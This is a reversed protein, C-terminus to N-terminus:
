KVTKIYIYTTPNYYISIFNNSSNVTELYRTIWNDEFSLEFRMASYFYSSKRFAFIDGKRLSAGSRMKVPELLHPEYLTLQGSSATTLRKQKLPLYDAMFKLGAEESIPFSTYADISYSMVPFSLTFLLLIAALGTNIIRRISMGAEEYLRTAISATLMASALITFTLGREILVHGKEGLLITLVFLVPITIAIFIEAKSFGGMQLLFDKLSRARLGTRVLVYSVVALAMLAYLLYIAKTANYISKYIFPTGFIFQETTRFDKPFIYGQVDKAWEDINVEPVKPQEQPLVTESVQNNPQIDAPTDTPVLPVAPWIFWGIFCTALMAAWILHSRNLRRSLNVILAAALFVALILPSIPHCIIVAIISFFTLVRSPTDQRWMLVLSTMLLLVGVAHASPHFVIYHLGATTLLTTMLAAIPNLLRTAFTYCLLAFLCLAILPFLHLYFLYGAGSINVLTYDLIYSLPFLNGYYAEPFMTGQLVGPIQLAVGLNRPGDTPRAYEALYYPTFWLMIAMLLLLLIHIGRNHIRFAFCVAGLLAIIGIAVYHLPFLSNLEALPDSLRTNQFIPYASKLSILYILSAVAALILIIVTVRKKTQENSM